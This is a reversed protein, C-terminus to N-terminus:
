YGHQVMGQHANEKLAKMRNQISEVSRIFAQQHHGRRNTMTITNGEIATLKLGNPLIQGIHYDNVLGRHYIEAVQTGQTDSFMGVYFLDTYLAHDALRTLKKQSTDAVTPEKVGGTQVSLQAQRKAEEAAYRQKEQAVLTQVLDRQDGVTHHIERISYAQDRVSPTLEMLRESHVMGSFIITLASLMRHVKGFM